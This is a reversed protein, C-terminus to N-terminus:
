HFGCDWGASGAEPNKIPSPFVHICHPPLASPGAAQGSGAGWWGSAAQQVEMKDAPYIFSCPPALQMETEAAMM